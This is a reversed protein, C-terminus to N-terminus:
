SSFPTSLPKRATVVTVPLYAHVPERLCARASALFVASRAYGWGLNVTLHRLILGELDINLRIRNCLGIQNLSQDDSWRRSTNILIEFPMTPPSQTPVLENMPWKYHREVVDEYGCARLRDASEKWITYSKGTKVSAQSMTAEWVRYFSDPGISGDDAVPLIGHEVIEVYGGPKLANYCQGFFYNWDPVSGFLERIHIMDFQNDPYTWSLTM